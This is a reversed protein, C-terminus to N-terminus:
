QGQLERFATESKPTRIIAVLRLNVDTWPLSVRALTWPSELLKWQLNYVACVGGPTVHHTARVCPTSGQVTTDPTRVPAWGTM